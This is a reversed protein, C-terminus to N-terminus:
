TKTAKQQEKFANPNRFFQKEVEKQIEEFTKQHFIELKDKKSIIRVHNRKSEGASEQNFNFDCNNGFGCM